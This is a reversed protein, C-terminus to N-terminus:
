ERKITQNRRFSMLCYDGEAPGFANDVPVNGIVFDIIHREDLLGVLLIFLISRPSIFSRKEPLFRDKTRCCFLLYQSVSAVPPNHWPFLSGNRAIRKVMLLVFLVV